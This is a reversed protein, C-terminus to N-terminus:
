YLNDAGAPRGCRRASASGTPLSTGCAVPTDGMRGLAADAESQPLRGKEVQGGLMRAIYDRAAQAAGPKEDYAVVRMGGQASVQMIGRGMSGTGVVGITLDSANPDFPM